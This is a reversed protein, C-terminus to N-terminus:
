ANIEWLQLDNEVIEAYKDAKHRDKFLPRLTKLGLGLLAGNDMLENLKNVLVPNYHLRLLSPRSYLYQVDRLNNRAWDEITKNGSAIRIDGVQKLFYSSFYFRLNDPRTRRSNRIRIYSRLMNYGTRKYKFVQYIFNGTVYSDIYHTGYSRMFRRIESTDSVNLDEIARSVYDKAAAGEIDDLEVTKHRKTLKVLVYCCNDPNSDYVIGFTRMIEDHIWDGMFAKWPKDTGEIRFNRFYANLLDDFTECLLVDMDTIGDSTSEKSTVNVFVRINRENFPVVVERSDYGEYDASVVQTVQSLDGYNAFVDIANGITLGYGLDDDEESDCLVSCFLVVFYVVLMKYCM